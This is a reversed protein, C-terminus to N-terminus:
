FLYPTLRVIILVFYKIFLAAILASVSVAEVMLTLVFNHLLKRKLM